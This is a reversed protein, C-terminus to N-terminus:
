FKAFTKALYMSFQTQYVNSSNNVSVLNSNLYITTSKREGKEFPTYNVIKKIM